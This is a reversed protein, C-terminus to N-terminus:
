EKTVTISHPADMATTLLNTITTKADHLRLTGGTIYTATTITRAFRFATCDVEAGNYLSLTTVTGTSDLNLTGGRATITTIAQTGSITVTGGAQELLTLAGSPQEHTVTGGDIYMNTFDCVSFLKGGTMNVDAITVAEDRADQGVGVIGGTINLTSSAQDCNIRIPALGAESATKASNYVYTNTTVSTHNLNIRGSGTPSGANNSKGIYIDTTVADLATTRYEYVAPIADTAAQTSEGNSSTAFAKSNLGIKGTYSQWIVGVAKTDSTDLGWCINPTAGEVHWTDGTTPVINASWNDATSWNNPGSSVITITGAGITGTGSTASATATFPVGAVGATGKVTAATVTWDVTSFYPHTSAELAVQLNTATTNVDTYGEVSVAQDGITMTYTTAADYATVQFTEVQKVPPAGGEWIYTAM